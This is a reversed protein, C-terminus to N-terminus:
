LNLNIIFESGIGLKSVLELTGGHAKVIDHTISLGLGTGETGKKTTFFPQLIKDKIEDPIGPGNDEVSILMHDSESKTRVTLKPHYLESNMIKLESNFKQRMADFANNCLNIIVRTFDERVLPIEKITDDLELAIEVEIPNKGARMGHFSLNVYEKIMSNLDTPEKKGSGGRSHQLMSTVIGNARSGHEHIKELNAKIDALIEDELEESEDKEQNKIRTDQIKDRAERKESRAELIEEIMELSVESFNNVFNLPNKIEHAIGATLQGLSALKEQQILQAQTAKLESMAAEVASKALELKNFDEYRAYATSFADALNQVLQLEEDKLTADNGVYLMGQLFPLFHLYLDTPHNETVYKETSAMAGQEVLNRTFEAFAAEDMHDRYSQKQEWHSVIQRTQETAQYPLHFAAISKGDPTSLFAQVEQKGQDMIFVGCRIFPVGLIKLENWILPQIRELDSTTRMSAIEARVRDVSARKIAELAQAEAKQLDLFRTYTQEFEKAFRKFVDHAEPAPVLTVFLLYGYKFYAMHNIQFEPAKALHKDIAENGTNNRSAFYQYLEKIRDGSFEDVLLSEGRQGAEYYEKLIYERPTQYPPLTGELDSFWETSDHENYINFACGRTPIGLEVVQKNLLYSVESLEESRQMAMTNARVRELALQIQAERAQSEAKVLDLYRRYTQEFLASFRKTVQILEPQFEIPSFAYFFGHEFIFCHQIEKQPLKEIPIQIKYDPANNLMQYYNLLDEGELVYKHFPVQAKWAKRASKLLPHSAMDINGIHLNVEDGNKRATWLQNNENDHNLIGIGFRTGEDVGLATLESFMKVVCKGVDESSHMAMTQARVRELAAEVQAERAQAEAKQLDQYRRYTQGFVAAFRHYVNLSEASLDRKSFVYLCGEKFYFDSHIIRPADLFNGLKIKYNPQSKIADSYSILDEGQLTYQQFEKREIWGQYASKLLPHSCMDLHGITLVSKGDNTKAATWAEMKEEPLMIGIGCREDEGLVGLGVLEEFLIAVSEGVEQSNHMAMTRSRVRELAAEIRAERAQAEAKQLDLFRTYTQEFEKAFRKFVEHAEPAPVLTIFLLYGYKFYAVHNIQFEPVQTVDAEITEGDKGSVALTALYRYHERIREGGFEEILLTEGQQGAEYYKLFINERPTKYTPITGELNSFWETSDHENYINFASGRTPIGLEVVQKNLLYSVEALEESSQMAMTSARVRELALQIQAERAQAEAIQLDLYRRYTQGFVGAFRKYISAAERGIPEKTFAFLAGEPFFFDTLTEQEPLNEITFSTPYERYRNITQYYDILYERDMTFTFVAERKKWAERVGTLLAHIRVDLWGIVMSDNEDADSKATWIESVPNDNFIVIGCRNFHLGLKNLEDFLTLVTDGVDKSNHMAMTKSRVRELAAEIHAERAQAEAKQLDLFRIYAQEFVKAVRKLINYDDVSLTKEFWSDAILASNKEMIVTHTYSQAQLMMEGVSAPIQPNYKIVYTYYKNKEDFLYTRNFIDEVVTRANWVSKSFESHELLDINYPLNILLPESIVDPSAVWLVCDKSGEKFLQIAAADFDLALEKLRAFVNAIVDKLEESKHMALSRSRIKELVAEIQAERAQAEARKLDLFRVYAQNFAVAFRSIIEQQEEPLPEFSGTVLSGFQDSSGSLHVKEAAAMFAKIPEPLKALETKSFGFRDWDRKEKGEFLYTWKKKRKKCHDLYMLHSPHQNMQVFFGNEALLGEHGAMWWTIGQNDPNVVMIFCRDLKADLKTLEGYLKYIIDGLASSYQMALSAARIRELAAEIELERNKEVLDATKEAVLKELEEAKQKWSDLGWTDKESEVQEPKSGHWHIVKWQSDIYSLVVSFRIYMEVAEEGTNITLYVDDAFVATNEDETTYHNVPKIKWSIDLGQSQEKQIELLELVGKIGQCKEDIATGFGFIREDIIKPLPGPDNSSLGIEMFQRYTDIMAQKKESEM